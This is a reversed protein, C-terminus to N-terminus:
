YKESAVAVVIRELNINLKVLALLWQIIPLALNGGSDTRKPQELHCGIEYM